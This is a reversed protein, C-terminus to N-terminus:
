DACDYELIVFLASFSSPILSRVHGVGVDKARGWDILTPDTAAEDWLINGPQVDTHLIGYKTRIAHHEIVRVCDGSKSTCM